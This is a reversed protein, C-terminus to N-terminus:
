TLLYYSLVFFVDQNLSDLVAEATCIVDAGDAGIVTGPPWTHPPGTPNEPTLTDNALVAGASFSVSTEMFGRPITESGSGPMSWSVQFGTVVARTGPAVSLLVNDLGDASIVLLQAFDNAGIVGTGWGGRLNDISTQLAAIASTLATIAPLLGFDTGTVDIAARDYVTVQVPDGALVSPVGGAPAAVFTLNMRQQTPDVNINWGITQPPVYRNIGSLYLWTQSPNDVTLRAIQFDGPSLERVTGVAAVPFVYQRQM